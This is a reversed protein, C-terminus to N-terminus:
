FLPVYKAETHLTMSAALLLNGLFRVPVELRIEVLATYGESQGSGLSNNELVVSLDSITYEVEGDSIKQYGGATNELGLTESLQGYVDGTDISEDWRGTGDPYWGAAYGERVAHYVDDYNDNVTSIVAQQAAEKVGQAIIWLRSFEAIACFLMLLVLVIALIMPTGEGSRRRFIPKRVELVGGVQRHRFGDAHNPVLWIRRVPRYRNGADPDRHGEDNLQIRGTTSWRSDPDLGTSDTLAAARRTTETGVRGAIEAERVLEVAYTDLQQKTIYVPLVRVVLALVLMACVVLVCVDIYGEGSRRKLIKKM